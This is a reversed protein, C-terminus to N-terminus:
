QTTTYKRRLQSKSSAPVLFNRHETPERELRLGYNRRWPTAVPIRGKDPWWLIVRGYLYKQIRLVFGIWNLDDRQLGDVSPIM